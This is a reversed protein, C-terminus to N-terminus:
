RETFTQLLLATYRNVRSGRKGTGPNRGWLHFNVGSKEQRNLDSSIIDVGLTEKSSKEELAYLYVTSSKRLYPKFERTLKEARSKSM